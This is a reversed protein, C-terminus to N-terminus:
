ATAEGAPQIKVPIDVVVPGRALYAATVGALAERAIERADRLVLPAVDVALRQMLPTLTQHYLQWDGAHAQEGPGATRILPALQPALAEAAPLLRQALVVELLYCLLDYYRLGVVREAGFEGAASALRAAGAEKLADEVVPATVHCTASWVARKADHGGRPWQPVAKIAGDIDSGTGGARSRDLAEAVAPADALEALRRAIADLGRVAVAQMERRQELTAPWEQAPLRTEGRGDLSTWGPEGQRSEYCTALGWRVVRATMAGVDAVTADQVDVRVDVLLQVWGDPASARKGAGADPSTWAAAGSVQPGSSQDPVTLAEVVAPAIEVSTQIAMGHTIDVLGLQGEPTACAVVHWGSTNRYEVQMARLVGPVLAAGQERLELQGRALPLDGYVERLERAHLTRAHDVTLAGIGQHERCAARGSDTITYCTSRVKGMTQIHETLYAAATLRRAAELEEPRGSVISIGFTRARVLIDLDQTSITM